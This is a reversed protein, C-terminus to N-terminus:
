TEIISRKVSQVFVSTQVLIGSHPSVGSKTHLDSSISIHAFFDRFIEQPKKGRKREADM